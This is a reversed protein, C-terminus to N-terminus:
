KMCHVSIAHIILKIFVTISIQTVYFTSLTKAKSPFKNPKELFAIKTPKLTLKNSALNGDARVNKRRLELVCSELSV